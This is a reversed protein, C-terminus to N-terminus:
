CIRFRGSCFNNGDDAGGGWCLTDKLQLQIICICYLLIMLIANKENTIFTPSMCAGWNYNIQGMYYAHSSINLFNYDQLGHNINLVITYAMIIAISKTTAPIQNWVQFHISIRVSADLNSEMSCFKHRSCSEPQPIACCTIYSYSAPKTWTQNSAATKVMTGRRCTVYLTRNSYCKSLYIHSQKVLLRHLFINHMPPPVWLAKPSFGGWYKPGM